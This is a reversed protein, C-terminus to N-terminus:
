AYLLCNMALSIQENVESSDTLAVNVLTPILETALIRDLINSDNEGLINSVIWAAERRITMSKYQLHITLKSYLGSDEM